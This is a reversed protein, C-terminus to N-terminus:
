AEGGLLDAVDTRYFRVHGGPTRVSRILGRKAWRTVTKPHVRLTEALEAALMLDAMRPQPASVGCWWRIGDGAM